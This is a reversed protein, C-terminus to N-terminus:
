KKKGKPLAERNACDQGVARGGSLNIGFENAFQIKTDPNKQGNIFDAVYQWSCETSCARPLLCGCNPDIRPRGRQIVFHTWGKCRLCQRHQICGDRARIQLEEATVDRIPNPTPFGREEKKKGVPHHRIYPQHFTLQQGEVKHTIPLLTVLLVGDYSVAGHQPSDPSVRATLHPLEEQLTWTSRGLYESIAERIIADRIRYFEDIGSRIVDFLEPMVIRPEGSAFSPDGRGVDEAVPRFGFIEYRCGLVYVIRTACRIDQADDDWTGGRLVRDGGVEAVPRFGCNLYRPGPAYAICHACRVHPADNSWSGSRLVRRFRRM